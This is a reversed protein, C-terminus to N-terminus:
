ELEITANYDSIGYNGVTNKLIDYMNIEEGQAGHLKKELIKFM